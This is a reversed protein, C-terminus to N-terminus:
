PLPSRTREREREGGEKERVWWKREEGGVVNELERGGKDSEKERERESEREKERDRSSEM